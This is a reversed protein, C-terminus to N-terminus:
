INSSHRLCAAPNEVHRAISEKPPLGVQYAITSGCRLPCPAGGHFEVRGAEAEMIGEVNVGRAVGGHEFARTMSVWSDSM